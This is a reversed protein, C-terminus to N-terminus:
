RLEEQAIAAAKRSEDRLVEWAPVDEDWEVLSSVPGFRRLAARYLSWVDDPVPGRHSDFEHSGRDTHGALHFQWVRSPDIGQLYTEPEYDFNRATVVVNNLDLLILCDSRRAVEDLFTWEPMESTQFAVYSSVNELLIRRGLAEQVRSVREVVLRLAEETYPLPLLDHAHHRGYRGWCLHDSIWAPEIRQALERLRDLHDPRPPEMSGIGLSVGHLVIPLDRRLRELVAIPRGGRGFFNESIAEVWDVDLGQELARAYHPVRLGVGHGLFPRCPSASM